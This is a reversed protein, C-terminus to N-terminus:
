NENKCFDDYYSSIALDSFDDNSEKLYANKLDNEESVKKLIKIAEEFIFSQTKQRKQATNQVFSVINIPLSISIRQKTQM